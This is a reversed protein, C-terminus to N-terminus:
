GSRLSSYCKGLCKRDSHLREEPVLLFTPDEEEIEGLGLGLTGEMWLPSATLQLQIAKVAAGSPRLFRSRPM